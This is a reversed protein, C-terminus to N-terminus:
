FPFLAANVRELRPVRPAESEEEAAPTPEPVEAAPTVELETPLVFGDMISLGRQNFDQILFVVEQVSFGVLRAIAEPSQGESSALIVQCRRLIWSDSSHLLVELRERELPTLRRVFVGGDDGSPERSVQPPPPEAPGGIEPEAEAVPLSPELEVEDQPPEEESISPTEAPEDMEPEAPEIPWGSAPRLRLLVGLNPRELSALGQYAFQTIVERVTQPTRGVLSSIEAPTRGESSALIIQARHSM